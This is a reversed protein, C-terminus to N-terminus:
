HRYVFEPLNKQEDPIERIRGARDALLAISAQLWPPGDRVDHLLRKVRGTADDEKKTM